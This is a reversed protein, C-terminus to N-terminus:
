FLEEFRSRKKSITQTNPSSAESRIKNPNCGSRDLTKRPYEAILTGLTTNIVEQRRRIKGVNQQLPLSSASIVPGNNRLSSINIRGTAGSAM